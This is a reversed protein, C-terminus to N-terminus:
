KFSRTMTKIYSATPLNLKRRERTNNLYILTDNVMMVKAKSENMKMDHKESEDALEQLMQQLEHPTNACILINEAFRLYSFYEVYIQNGLYTRPIHM